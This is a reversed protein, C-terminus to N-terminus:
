INQEELPTDRGKIRLPWSSELLQQIPLATSKEVDLAVAMNIIRRANDIVPKDVMKGEFEWSGRRGESGEEVFKRLLRASYEISEKSPSFAEHIVPIQDPHIAQKGTFGFSAGNRCEERLVDLDRFDTSM